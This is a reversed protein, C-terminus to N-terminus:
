KATNSEGEWNGGSRRQRLSEFCLVSGAVALNLSETPGAFPITIRGDAAAIVAPPLGHAENGLVLVADALDTTDYPVADPGLVTALIPRSPARLAALAEDTEAVVVVPLRLAAGAAARLVKPNTPDVADGCVVVGAAGAAEASRILTGLNGPDAPDVLLPVPGTAPIDDISAPVEAIVAAIPQPSRTNLVGGLVGPAVPVVEVGATAARETLDPRYGQEVYVAEVALGSRLPSVAEDAGIAEAVISPGEVVFAREQSRAKRQTTLRRLRKIRPNRAM